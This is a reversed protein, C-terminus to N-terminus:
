RRASSARSRPARSRIPHRQSSSAEARTWPRRRSVVPPLLRRTASVISCHQCRTGPPVATAASPRMRPSAARSSTSTTPTEARCRTGGAVGHRGGAGTTDSGSGRGREVLRPVAQAPGLDLPGGPRDVDHVRRAQDDRRRPCWEDDRDVVQREEVSEVLQRSPPVPEHTAAELQCPGVGVDHHARGFRRPAVTDVRPDVLAPQPDHQESDVPLRCGEVLDGDRLLPEIQLAGVDRPDAGDLRALVDGAQEGRERADASVVAVVLEHQDARLSPPRLDVLEEHGEIVVDSTAHAGRIGTPHRGSRPRRPRRPGTSGSCM